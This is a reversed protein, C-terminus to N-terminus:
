LSFQYADMAERISDNPYHLPWHVSTHSNNLRVSEIVDESFIIDPPQVIGVNVAGSNYAVRVLDQIDAELQGPDIDVSIKRVQM